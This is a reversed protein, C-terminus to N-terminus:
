GSHEAAHAAAAFDAVDDGTLEVEPPADPDMQAIMNTLMSQREAIPQDRLVNGTCIMFRAQSYVEVGDRRKGNGIKEKVWVDFGRGSQSHETYSDFRDIISQYRDLAERSTGDKVDMDICSYPDDATQVYGIGCGQETAHHSATDFDSWTTPDTVSAARGDVTMPRKNQRALCWQARERLEAPFRSWDVM